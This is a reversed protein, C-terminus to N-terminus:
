LTNHERGKITSTPPQPLSGCRTGAVTLGALGRASNSPSQEQWARLVGPAHLTSRAAHMVRHDMHNWTPSFGGLDGLCDARWGAGRATAYALLDADGILM